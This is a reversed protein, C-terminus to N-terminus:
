RGRGPRPRRRCLRAGGDRAADRFGARARVHGAVRHQGAGGTRVTEDIRQGPATTAARHGLHLFLQDADPSRARQDAPEGLGLLHCAHDSVDAARERRGGVTGRQTDLDHIRFHDFDCIIIKDPRQSNPLSDAYRKAQGFPTVMIGQRTEPKDLDVGLSKQEILTKADAITVDVYGRESTSKEFRVNATVDEMGVVDRLLELWFSHTDGKEYGRGAWKEAFAKAREARAREDVEKSSM